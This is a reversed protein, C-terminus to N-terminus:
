IARLIELPDARTARLGPIACAVLSAVVLIFEAGVLAVVDTPNVDYLWRGLLPASWMAIIAGIAVGSLILVSGERLVLRMIDARKAGLAVRVGFERMRRGVAYSLVANLGMSSLFLAFLGFMGFLNAMFDRADVMEDFYGLWPFVFPVGSTPILDQLVRKIEHTVRAEDDTLRAVLGVSRGGFRPPLLFVSPEKELYPDEQFVLSVSRSVGIVPYWIDPADIGGLKIMRGVPDIGPWLERAADEDVIVL